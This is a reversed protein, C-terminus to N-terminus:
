SRMTFSLNPTIEEEAFKWSLWVVDDSASILSMVEIGPSALFRYLERPETIMKSKTRNSRETLKGWMSNLCLKAIATKAANPRIADKNLLIGESDNFNHVFRDEDDPNRVWTLYVSVEAKLKLFTNIYQVFLVGDGKAPDFQTIDYVYFGYV